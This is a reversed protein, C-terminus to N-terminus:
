SNRLRVAGHPGYVVAPNLMFEIEGNGPRNWPNSSHLNFRRLGDLTLLAKPITEYPVRDHRKMDMLYPM